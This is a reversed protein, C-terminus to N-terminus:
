LDAISVRRNAKTFNQVIRHMKEPGNSLHGIREKESKRALSRDYLVARDDQLFLLASKDKVCNCHSEFGEYGEDRDKCGELNDITLRRTENKVRKTYKLRCSLPAIVFLTVHGSPTFVAVLAAHQASKATRSSM